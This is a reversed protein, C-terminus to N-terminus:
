GVLELLVESAEVGVEDLEGQKLAVKVKDFGGLKAIERKHNTLYKVLRAKADDYRLMTTFVEKHAFRPELLSIYTDLAIRALSPIELLHALKYVSKASCPLPRHPQTRHRTSFYQERSTSDVFSASLPAFTVQGTHLWSLFARYTTYSAETVNVRKFSGNAPTIQQKGRYLTDLETDSDTNPSALTHSGSDDGPNRPSTGSLSSVASSTIQGEVFASSFMINYYPSVSSLLASSTWLHLTSEGPKPFSLEVDNPHPADYTGAIEAPM